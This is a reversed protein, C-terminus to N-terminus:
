IDNNTWDIHLNKQSKKRIYYKKNTQKGTKLGGVSTKPCTILFPPTCCWEGEQGGNLFYM